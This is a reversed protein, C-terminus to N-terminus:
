PGIVHDPIGAPRGIAHAPTARGLSPSMGHCVGELFQKAGSFAADQPAELLRHFGDIRELLVVRMEGILLQAALRGLQALPELLTLREVLQQGLRERRNALCGLAREALAGVVHLDHAARRKMEAVDGLHLGALALGQHRGQGGVEVGDGAAAHVDDGDVVEERRVLGVDHAADEAREAHGGARDHRTLRGVHTALLVGGVDGVAGVVFESEVVQAVVHRPALLVHDLAVVEEGDDVLDVRDEDVLGARRQDDRPRRGPLRVAPEHLERLDGAGELRTDVVLDVLLLAGDAHEFRADLLDLVVEADVVEVLRRVGREDREEVVRDLRQREELAVAVVDHHVVLHHDDVLVGPADEDPTAVVLADVLRDLRLLANRDLGLVLGEGGDRQLVVEAQVVLEAAHGTRGLGLGGLEHRRVLEADHRDGGVLRHDALVLGVEHVLVLLGLEHLHGFVDGLSVLGTLGHEDSRDADLLALVERAQQRLLADLVLDQVRLIVSALGLDDGSCPTGARDGDRGVHGATTGVDHEAAVGLEERHLLHLRLPEVRVLGGVLVLGRPVLDVLRRAFPDGFLPLGRSLGATEVHQSGLAVLRTADVVLQASARPALAVGTLAAEVQRQGVREHTQELGPGGLRDQRARIEGVVDGDLGAHDRARDLARLRLDLRAVGLDALVDELIVVDQVTLALRDVGVATVDQVAVVDGVTHLVEDFVGHAGHDVVVGAGTVVLAPVEVRQPGLQLREIRHAHRDVLDDGFAGTALAADGRLAELALHERIRPDGVLGAFLGQAGFGHAFQLPPHHQLHEIAAPAVM